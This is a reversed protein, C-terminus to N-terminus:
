TILGPALGEPQLIQESRGLVQQRAYSAFCISEEFEPSFTIFIIAGPGILFMERTLTPCALSLRALIYLLQRDAVSLKRKLPLENRPANTPLRLSTWLKKIVVVVVIICACNVSNDAWRGGDIVSSVREKALPRYGLRSEAIV